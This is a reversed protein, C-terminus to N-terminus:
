SKGTILEYVLEVLGNMETKSLSKEGTVITRKWMMDGIGWLLFILTDLRHEPIEIKSIGLSQQLIGKIIGGSKLYISGLAERIDDDEVESFAKYLIKYLGSAEAHRIYFNDGLVRLNSKLDADPSVGDIFFEAMRKSIYQLVEIFLDRKNEFYRYITGEAIGAKRAIESTTMNQYNQHNLIDIATQLILERKNDSAM